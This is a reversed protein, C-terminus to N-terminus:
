AFLQVFQIAVAVVSAALTFGAKLKRLIALADKLTM